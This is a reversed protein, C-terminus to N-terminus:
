FCTIRCVKSEGIAHLFIQKSITILYNEQWINYQVRKIAEVLLICHSEALLKMERKKVGHYKTASKQYASWLQNDIARGKEVHHHPQCTCALIQFCLFQCNSGEQYSQGFFHFLQQQVLEHEVFVNWFIQSACTESAVCFTHNM